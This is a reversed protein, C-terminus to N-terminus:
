AGAENLIRSKTVEWENKLVIQLEGVIEDIAEKDVHMLDLNGVKSLTADLLTFLQAVQQDNKKFLLKLKATHKYMEAAAEKEKLYLVPLREKWENMQEESGGKDRYGRTLNWMMLTHQAEYITKILEAATNRVEQLWAHRYESVKNQHDAQRGLQSNKEQNQITKRNVLYNVFSAAVVVCITVLFPLNSFFIDGTSMQKNRMELPISGEVKISTLVAQPTVSTLANSVGQKTLDTALGVPPASAPSNVSHTM